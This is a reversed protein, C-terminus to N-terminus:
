AVEELEPSADRLLADVVKDIESDTPKVVVQDGTEEITVGIRKLEAGSLRSLASKIPTEVIKILTDAQDRLHQRIRRVVQGADDFRVEGKGKTFGVRIGGVIITRPRQFLEPSEAIAAELNGKENACREVLERIRPMHKRKAAEIEKELARVKDGLAARAAGYSTARHEIETLTM